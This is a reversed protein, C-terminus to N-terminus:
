AMAYIARNRGTEKAEYLAEDAKKLLEDISMDKNFSINTFGISVTYKLLEDTGEESVYPCPTNEVDHCLRELAEKGTEYNTKPLVVAFEEGGIRGIIDGGRLSKKMTASFHKLVADGVDHGYTDNVSKFKDLDTLAVILPENDRYARKMAANSRSMFARRNSLGTLPDELAQKLLMNHYTRTRSALPHFIFAAEFLLVVLVVLLGYLQVSHYFAIKQIVENQYDALAKNLIPQLLSQAKRQLFDHAETREESQDAAEYSAYVKAQEIYEKLNRDLFFPHEYYIQTLTQSKPNLLSAEQLSQHLEEHNREIQGIAQTMIDLDLEEGLSYHKKASSSIQEVLTREQNVKFSNRISTQQIQTISSTIFHVAISVVAILAFATIYAKSLSGAPDSKDQFPMGIKRGKLLKSFANQPKATNQGIKTSMQGTKLDKLEKLLFIGM